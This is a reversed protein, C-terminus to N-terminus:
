DSDMFRLDRLVPRTFREVGEIPFKRMFFRRVTCDAAAIGVNAEGRLSRVISRRINYIPKSEASEFSERYPACSVAFNEKAM